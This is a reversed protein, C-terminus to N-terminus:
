ELYSAKYGRIFLGSFRPGYNGAWFKLDIGGFCFKFKHPIKVKEFKYKICITEYNTNLQNKEVNTGFIIEGAENYVKLNIYGKSGCDFRRAIYGGALIIYHGKLFGEIFEGDFLENVLFENYVESEYYTGAFCHTRYPQTLFTEVVFGGNKKEM